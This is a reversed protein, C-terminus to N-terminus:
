LKIENPFLSSRRSGISEELTRNSIFAKNNGLFGQAKYIKNSFDWCGGKAFWDKAVIDITAGQITEKSKKTLESNKQAYLNGKYQSSTILSPTIFFLGLSLYIIISIICFLSEIKLRNYIM